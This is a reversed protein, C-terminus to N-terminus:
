RKQKITENLIRFATSNDTSLPTTTQIHGLETLTIMLPAGSQANKQNLRQPSWMKSLRRWMSSPPMSPKRKHEFNNELDVATINDYDMFLHDLMARATINAFGIMDDNLFDL